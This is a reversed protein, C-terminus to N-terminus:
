RNIVHQHEIADGLDIAIATLRAFAQYQGLEIDVFVQPEEIAV